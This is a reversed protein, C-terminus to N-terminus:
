YHAWVTAPIYIYLSPAVRAACYSLVRVERLGLYLETLLINDTVDRLLRSIASVPLIGLRAGTACGGSICKMARIVVAATTKASVM